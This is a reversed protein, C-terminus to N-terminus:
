PIDAKLIEFPKHLSISAIILFNQHFGLFSLLLNKVGIVHDLIHLGKEKPLSPKQVKSFKLFAFIALSAQHIRDPLSLKQTLTNLAFYSTSELHNCALGATEAENEQLPKSPTLDWRELSTQRKTPFPLLMKILKSLDRPGLNAMRRGMVM